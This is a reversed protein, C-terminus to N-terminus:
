RKATRHDLTTADFDKQIKKLELGVARLDANWFTGDAFRVRNVYAIGTQFSFDGPAHAVWTRKDAAGPVLDRITLGATRDLSENFLDFSVLCIEVAVMTKDGSNEYAVTHRIGEPSNPAGEQYAAGYATIRIPSGPQAIVRTLPELASASSVLLLPLALLAAIGRTM